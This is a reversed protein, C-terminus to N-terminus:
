PKYVGPYSFDYLLGVSFIGMIRLKRGTELKLIWICPMPLILIYLDSIINFVGTTYSAVAQSICHGPLLPDWSKQLPSCQFISRFLIAIYFILCSFIGIRTFIKLRPNPFFIREFFLILTLKTAAAVALYVNEAVFM